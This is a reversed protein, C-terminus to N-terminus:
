GILIEHSRQLTNVEQGAQYDTWVVLFSDQAFEFLNLHKKLSTSLEVIVILLYCSPHELKKM